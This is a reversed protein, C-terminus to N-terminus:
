GGSMVKGMSFIPLLLAMAVGGVVVGMLVIMLPEIFSTVQKVAADLEEESFAAIREMVEALRGSREGSSIMSAINKPLFACAFVADSIQLGDRVGQEMNSWLVDYYYNNTVGRCIAIIDLLNVGSALLTAMTRAARTIYLQGYMRRVIPAHLRLWDCTRRGVPQSLFVTLAIGLVLLTPAYILYETTVFNSMGLLVRTPTPLTASRMEYIKAFKPLVFAMLFVTLALGTCMMFVPYALAGKIQKATRREKSLYMGIRGLMVAMTGSAESAKMLSIMMNPFVRPWKAMAASFKEGAYIDDRLVSLVDRFEKRPTQQCFADLAESLPVGTELMVSLQQCFAIVDERKVRKAAENRRLQREDLTEGARMANEQVSLVYKGESRLKAGVEEASGAVLSGSVVAGSSDRAKFAYTSQAPMISCVPFNFM